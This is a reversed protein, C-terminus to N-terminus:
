EIEVRLPFGNKKALVRTLNMRSVAIDYTYTGIVASGEEHVKMMLEHAVDESKNYVSVLVDVVFAMTTYDDNYFVVNVEPPLEISVDAIIGESNKGTQNNVDSM